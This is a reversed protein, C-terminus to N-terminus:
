EETKLEQAMIENYDRIILHVRLYFSYDFQNINFQDDFYRSILHELDLGIYSIEDTLNKEVEKILEAFLKDENKHKELFEKLFNIESEIESDYDEIEGCIKEIYEEKTKFYVQINYDKGHIPDNFDEEIKYEKLFPFRDMVKDISSQINTNEFLWDKTILIDRKSDKEWEIKYAPTSHKSEINVSHRGEHGKPLDCEYYGMDTIQLRCKCVPRTEGYQEM